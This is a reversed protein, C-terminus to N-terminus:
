VVVNASNKIVHVSNSTEFQRSVSCKHASFNNNTVMCYDGEVLAVGGRRGFLETRILTM